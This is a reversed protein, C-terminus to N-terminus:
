VQAGPEPSAGNPAPRPTRLAPHDGRGILVKRQFTCVIIGDQNYGITEVAVVGRDPKTSSATKDLVTTQGYLTDGPFTPKLHKLNEIELNAIAAGSVDRVSMGLLISYVYNGVVVSRGFQTSKSYEDDLHLPAHNMTLLCFLHNDYETVTKGPWHRYVDGVEFEEFSRGFRTM